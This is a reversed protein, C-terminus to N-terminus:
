SVFSFHDRAGGPRCQRSKAGAEVGGRLPRLSASKVARFAALRSASRCSNGLNTMAQSAFRLDASGSSSAAEGYLARARRRAAGTRLFWDPAKPGDLDARNAIANALDYTIQPDEPAAAHLEEFIAIAEDVAAADKAANGADCLVSARLRQWHPHRGPLSRAAAIAAPPDADMLSALPAQAQLFQKKTPAAEVPPLSESM